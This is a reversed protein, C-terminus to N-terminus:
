YNPSIIQNKLVRQEYAQILDDKKLIGVVKKPNKIDIVPLFSIPHSEFLYLSHELNDELSLTIVERTMIDDAIVIDKLQEFEGLSARLDRLSLVGTLEEKKNLVIFHPYVSQNVIKLISFLTTSDYIFEFEKAMLDRVYLTRLIGVDHGRIINVGQKLLKMEYASFGFFIRVVISSSICAIMLPPMMHYNYTLEFITMIATIPALTTGAVLAGMGALAYHVPNVGSDPFFLIVASSIVTGVTAGIFLSPALIGGSMGSGISLSTAIIKAFLLLLAFKLPLSGSLASNVTEYGVGLIQPLQLAILGLIFGGIAPKIWAASKIREFFIGTSYIMYVFLMAAVGALIGLILYVVLEWYNVLHFPAVDFAPFEGWFIKSFLSAIISSVMIYSINAIEIDLLIIEIAFFTGAIPANFTAAIGAAAGSALCVRRLEPSLKFIQALSSGVSAGIQVIPGERGVSAGSGILLSTVFAKLFTVRHRIRSQRSAVSLIVETVGAGKAEPVLFTIIPGAALGGATPILIKLWWPSQIIKDLFTTGEAWFIDQFFEILTRFFLAGIASLLGIVISFLLLKLALINKKKM